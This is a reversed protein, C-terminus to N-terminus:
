QTGVVSRHYAKLESNLRAVSKVYAVKENAFSAYKSFYPFPDRLQQFEANRVVLASRNNKAGGYLTNRGPDSLSTNPASNNYYAVTDQEIKGFEAIFYTTDSVVISSDVEGQDNLFVMSDLGHELLHHSDHMAFYYVPCFDFQSAFAKTILQNKQQQAKRVKEAAEHNDYKEYYDIERQRLDLRVLLVGSKLEKISKEAYQKQREKQEKITEFTAQKQGIAPGGFCVISILVLIRFM